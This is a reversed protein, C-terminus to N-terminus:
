LRGRSKHCPIRCDNYGAHPYHGGTGGEIITKGAGEVKPISSAALLSSGLPDAAAILLIVFAVAVFMRAARSKLILYGSKKAKM